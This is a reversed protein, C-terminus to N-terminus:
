KELASHQGSYNWQQILLLCQINWLNELLNSKLAL